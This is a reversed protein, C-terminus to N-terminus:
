KEEVRIRHGYVWVYGPYREDSGRGHKEEYADRRKNLSRAVLEEEYTPWEGPGEFFRKAETVRAIVQRESAINAAANARAKRAGETTKAITFIDNM